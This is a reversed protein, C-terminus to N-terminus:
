HERGVDDFRKMLLLRHKLDKVVQWDKGVFWATHRKQMELASQADHCWSDKAPYYELVLWCGKDAIRDIERLVQSQQKPKLFMMVYNALIISVSKSFVPLESEGLVIDRHGEINTAAHDIPIVEFGQERMFKTNRGNGCGLDVCTRKFSWPCSKVLSAIHKDYVKKLFPTADPKHCRVCWRENMYKRDPQKM